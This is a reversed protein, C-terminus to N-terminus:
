ARSVPETSRVRARSVVPRGPRSAKLRRATSTTWRTSPPPTAPSVYLSAGLRESSQGLVTLSLSPTSPTLSPTSPTFSPTVGPVARLSSSRLKRAFDGPRRTGAITAPVPQDLAVTSRVRPASRRSFATVNRPEGLVPPYKRAVEAFRFPLEKQVWVNACTTSGACRGRLGVAAM